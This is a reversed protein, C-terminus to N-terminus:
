CRRCHNTFTSWSSKSIRLNTLMDKAPKDSKKIMYYSYSPNELETTM